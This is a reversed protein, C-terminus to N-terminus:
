QSPGIPRKRHKRSRPTQSPSSSKYSSRSPPSTKKLSGEKATRRKRLDVCLEVFRVLIPELATLPTSRFRKLTFMETLSQLAAHTQGVSFLGEAQKLVAEPKTFPAM